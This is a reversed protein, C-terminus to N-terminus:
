INLASLFGEHIADNIQAPRVSDGIIKYPIGTEELKDAIKRVSRAGAANIVNDFERIDEKGDRVFKVIGDRVSKVEVGTEVKVKLRDINGLLVWRSSKGVGKGAKPLMEFVTVEKSGSTILERLREATEVEYKFLFYLVEPSITGKMAIFEATELGVAGGGIIAIKKGLPPDYKLIDWASIVSKGDIGDVPPLAIEAGEAAIIFDPKKNKIMSIDAETNLNVRINYKNLMENYYRILEYLESKHPPKCAIKLQGGIMGSKEYIEVDHGAEAATAAAELGGPGAGIIMVKKPSNSVRINREGEFGTRPNAICFVPKGAFVQDTCGQSCSVCPRIEKVRGELAKQPWYPDALLVRGLCVMDAFDDKIIQEALFPDTIRNSCIVPISVSRKINGALYAFGGRPLEMSLQPVRSEHWGGTINLADVGAKEYVKAFEPTEFDTNSGPVLDNGAMRIIIPFDVGLRTRMMEIIERVFRVRNEFSGGYHDSRRNRLPSLFQTILYGASGIIEVGDFGAEKAREAGNIFAEQVEKIEDITMERPTEKTYPNYIASPAIAQKKGILISHSYGGAHFLQIWAKAGSRKILDALYKFSPIAEDSDIAVALFGSGVEDIGVPGVTVIGAGGKAREAYFNFYKENLKRDYSYLLGLSPYVIRNKIETKNIVVPSFLNKFM